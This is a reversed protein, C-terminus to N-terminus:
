IKNDNQYIYEFSKRFYMKIKFIKIFNNLRLYHDIDSFNYNKVIMDDYHHEFHIFKLINIKKGLGKLIPYEYGETDIKLLDINQIKNEEIFDDLREINVEYKLFFDKDKGFFNLLKNKKKFYNSDFNIKNLTTSSSEITQNILAKEKKNGFGFNYIMVKNQDFKNLNNINKKLVNFNKLSPEFAYIKSPNLYTLYFNITEGHHAGVDFIVQLNNLKKFKIFKLLKKQNFYDFFDIIKKIIASIM